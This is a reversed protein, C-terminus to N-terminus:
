AQRLEQLISWLLGAVVSHCFFEILFKQDHREDRMADSFHYQADVNATNSEKGTFGIARAKSRVNHEM